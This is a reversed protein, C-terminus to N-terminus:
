SNVERVSKEKPEVSYKSDSLKRIIIDSYSDGFRGQQRLLTIADENLNVIYRKKM